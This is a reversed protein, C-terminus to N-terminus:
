RLITEGFTHTELMITNCWRGCCRQNGLGYFPPNPTPANVSATRNRGDTFLANYIAHKRALHGNVWSIKFSFSVAQKRNLLLSIGLDAGIQKELHLNSLRPSIQAVLECKRARPYALFRCHVLEFRAVM